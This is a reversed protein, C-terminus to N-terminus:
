ALSIWVSKTQTYSELVEPGCERGFGSAKFGGFPTTADYANYTNVWVTGVKMARAVRHARKLDSTQVGSALGYETGNALSVAEDESDFSTVALEPGFIEEQFIRHDPKVETIITPEFWFGRGKAFAPAFTKGGTALKAGDEQGYAVHKRVTDLQAKSSLPGFVAAPALPDGRVVTEAKEVLGRVVEDHVKREVLLRSGATCIEGKNYFIGFFANRVAAELDADAFVINASKGGLEMTTHKLTEASDRLIGKGISTSGTFSVKNVLAHKVLVDGVTGGPGTVLNFVGKPVGAEEFIEAMKITTLPTDSAPKHVVTNGSALAPALKAASQFLPFNFPTIAAVVGLPERLTYNM